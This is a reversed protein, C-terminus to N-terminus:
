SGIRYSGNGEGARQTFIEDMAESVVAVKKKSNCVM